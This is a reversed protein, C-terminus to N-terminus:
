NKKKKKKKKKKKVDPYKESGDSLERSFISTSSEAAASRVIKRSPPPAEPRTSLELEPGVQNSPNSKTLTEEPAAADEPELGETWERDHADWDSASSPEELGVEDLVDFSRESHVEDQESM